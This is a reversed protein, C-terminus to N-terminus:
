AAKVLRQLTIGIGLAGGQQVCGRLLGRALLAQIFLRALEQGEHSGPGAQTIGVQLPQGRVLGVASRELGGLLGDVHLAARQFQAPADVADVAQGVARRQQDVVLGLRQCFGPVAHLGAAFVRLQGEVSQQGAAFGRAGEVQVQGLAFCGARM